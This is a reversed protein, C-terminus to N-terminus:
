RASLGPRARRGAPDVAAGAPVGDLRRGARSILADVWGGLYGALLGLLSASCAPSREAAVFAVTLAIRAGYILRSLVDRGLSTPASCFHRARRRRFGAPPQSDGADSGADLPDHPAIWPAVVAVVILLLIFGGVCVVKPDRVASGCGHATAGCGDDCTARGTDVDRRDPEAMGCSPNLAAVHSRGGPQRSHLDVGFMLVLGQILPLDRNIVADIALNGIGPYSFIREVIVTGGILFTFQVGTLAVTPM